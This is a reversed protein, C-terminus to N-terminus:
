LNGTYVWRKSGIFNLLTLSMIIFFLVWALASGYGMRFYRFSTDYLYLMYFYTAYNPGGQTMLYSSTFVQFSNIVGMVLNFFIIPSMMPITIFWFKAVANGGDLDCAEYLHRPIGQLGALYIVMPGGVGWLSMIILAPLAWAESALWGPGQIGLIAELAYNILGYQPNLIWMWLFSTAVSPLITPVYFLSRFVYIGPVDQNMLLAILFGLVLRLPISVVSYITTVKLSQWFLEDKAFLNVYNAVGVWKPPTFFDYDFFGLAVSYLMPGATFVLFGFLWPAAFLWGEIERWRHFNLAFSVRRGTTRQVM